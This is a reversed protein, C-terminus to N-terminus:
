VIRRNRYYRMKQPVNQGPAEVQAALGATVYHTNHQSTPSQGSNKAVALGATIYYNNDAM